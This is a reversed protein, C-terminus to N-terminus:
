FPTNGTMKLHELVNMLVKSAYTFLELQEDLTTPDKVGHLLNNRLRYVICLLGLLITPESNSPTNILFDKIADSVKKGRNTNKDNLSNVRSENISGDPNIYRTRFYGIQSAFVSIDIKTTNLLKDDVVEKLVKFNADTNCAYKEFTMWLLCFSLVKEKGRMNKLIAGDPFFKEFWDFESLTSTDM